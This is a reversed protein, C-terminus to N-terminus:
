AWTRRRPSVWGDIERGLDEQTSKEWQAIERGLNALKKGTNNINIIQMNNKNGKIKFYDVM